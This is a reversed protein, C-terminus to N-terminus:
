AVAEQMEDIERPTLQRISEALQRRASADASIDEVMAVATQRQTPGFGELRIIVRFGEAHPFLWGGNAAFKGLWSPTNFAASM